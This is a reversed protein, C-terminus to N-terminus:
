ALVAYVDGSNAADPLDTLRRRMAGADIWGGSPLAFSEGLSLAFRYRALAAVRELAALGSQRAITTVEFSLAPLAHTLGALAEAEFGEVDIKAFDPLGQAAILADFTTVPVEATADWRQGEWGAAGAAAAVFDGSLTSVTPNASNLRLAARGPAAGVAAQVLTVGDDRGHILRLARMAAPQPEVAVVRAGLARFASTRDGVHAGIDFALGCPRLFRAYLARMRAARDAEGHYLRLSRGIGAARAPM